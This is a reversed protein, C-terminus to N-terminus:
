ISGAENEIEIYFEEGTLKIAGISLVEGKYPDLDSFETDIFVINKKEFPELM